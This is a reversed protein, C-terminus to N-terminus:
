LARVSDPELAFAFPSVEVAIAQDILGQYALLAAQDKLRVGHRQDPGEVKPHLRASYAALNRRNYAAILETLLAEADTM